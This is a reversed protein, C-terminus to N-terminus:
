SGTAQGSFTARYQLPVTVRPAAPSGPAGPPDQRPVGAAYGPPVTVRGSQGDPLDVTAGDLAARVRAAASLARTHTGGVCTVWWTVTLAGETGTLRVTGTGPDCRVVAYPHPGLEDEPPDTPAIGSHVGYTTTGETPDLPPTIEDRLLAVMADLAEHPSIPEYPM